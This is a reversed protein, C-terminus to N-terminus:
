WLVAYVVNSDLQTRVEGFFLIGSYAALIGTTGSAPTASTPANDLAM